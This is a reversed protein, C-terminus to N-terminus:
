HEPLLETLAITEQLHKQEKGIEENGERFQEHIVTEGAKMGEKKRIDYLDLLIDLPAKKKILLSTNILDQNSGFLMFDQWSIVKTWFCIIFFNKLEIQKNNKTEKNQEQKLINQGFVTHFHGNKQQM